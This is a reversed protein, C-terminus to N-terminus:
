VGRFWNLTGGTGGRDSGGHLSDFPGRCCLAKIAISQNKRLVSCIIGAIVPLRWWSKFQLALAVTFPPVIFGFNSLFDIFATWDGLRGRTWPTSFREALLGIVIRTPSFDSIYVYYFMASIWCALLIRFVTESSYNRRAFNDLTRPLNPPNLSCGISLATGFLGIATFTQRIIDPELPTSYSTQLLEAYGITVLGFMVIHQVRLLTSIGGHFMDSVAGSLLGATM